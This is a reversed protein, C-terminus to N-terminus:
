PSRWIRRDQPHVVLHRCNRRVARRMYAPTGKANGWLGSSVHSCVAEKAATASDDVAAAGVVGGTGGVEETVGAATGVVGDVAVV